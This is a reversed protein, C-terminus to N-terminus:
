GRRRRLHRLRVLNSAVASILTVLLLLPLAREAVPSSVETTPPMAVLEPEEDKDADKGRGKDDGKGAGDDKGPGQEGTPEEDAGDVSTVSGPGLDGGDGTGTDGTGSDGDGKGDDTGDGDGGDGKGPGTTGSQEGIAAAVAQAQKWLPATVGNKTLPV